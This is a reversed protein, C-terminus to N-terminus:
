FRRRTTLTAGGEPLLSLQSRGYAGWDVWWIASALAAGALVVGGALLFDSRHALKTVDDWDRGEPHRQYASKADLAAVGQWTAFSLLLLAGVGSSVFVALPARSKRRRAQQTDAARSAAAPAASAAAAPAVAAAPTVALLPTSPVAKLAVQCTKGAECSVAEAVHGEASIRHEGPLVYSGNLAAPAGDILPACAVQNPERTPEDASLACVIEVRALKSGLEALANEASKRDADSTAPRALSREAARAILLPLGARKAAALANSLASPSPSLADAALFAEAARPYDAQKYAQVGADFQAAASADASSAQAAVRPLPSSFLCFLWGLLLARASCLM